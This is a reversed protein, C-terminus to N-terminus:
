ETDRHNADNAKNEEQMAEWKDRVEKLEIDRKEAGMKRWEKYKKRNSAYSWFVSNLRWVKIAFVITRGWLYLLLAVGCALGIGIILWRGIIDIM